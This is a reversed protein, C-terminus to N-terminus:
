QWATVATGSSGQPPSKTNKNMMQGNQSEHNPDEYNMYNKVQMERASIFSGPSTNKAMTGNAWQTLPTKPFPCNTSLM